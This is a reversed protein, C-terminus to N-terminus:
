AKWIAHSIKITVMRKTTTWQRKTTWERRKTNLTIILFEFFFGTILQGWRKLVISEM